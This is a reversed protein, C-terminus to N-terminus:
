KTRVERIRDLVDDKTIYLEHRLDEFFRRKRGHQAMENYPNGEEVMTEVGAMVGQYFLEKRRHFTVQADIDKIRAEIVRL